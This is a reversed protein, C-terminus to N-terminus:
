KELEVTHHEAFEDVDLFIDVDEEMLDKLRM